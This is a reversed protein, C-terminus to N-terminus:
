CRCSGTTVPTASFSATIPSRGGLCGKETEAWLLVVITGEPQGDGGM